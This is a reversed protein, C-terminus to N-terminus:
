EVIELRYLTHLVIVIVVVNIGRKYLEPVPPRMGIIDKNLRQRCSLIPCTIFLYRDTIKKIKKMNINEHPLLM